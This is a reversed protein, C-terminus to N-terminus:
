AIEHQLSAKQPTLCTPATRRARSKLTRTLLINVVTYLVADILLLVTPNIWVSLLINAVSLVLASLVITLMSVHPGLGCAMLKHHIHNRDPLFPSQGERVRHLYVRVVDMCPVLLPAFALVFANPLSPQASASAVSLLKLSLLCIMLGITLSGTDGMFIKRGRHVNGFVNYYYFPVLVGVTALALLAYLYSGFYLFGAAYNLLALICLGSALGDLGDILNIANLVFIVMFVTLPWAIWPSLSGLGALGCLNNLTFGGAIFLAGCILQAIFKQRYRVGVLDDAIGVLYILLFACVTYYLAQAEQEMVTHLDTQGFSLNLGSLLILAMFAIPTFALGGLRPVVHRHVKRENPVDFLRKRYAILLIRPTIYGAFLASLAFVSFLNVYWTNM